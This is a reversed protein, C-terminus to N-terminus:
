HLLNLDMYSREYAIWAIGLGAYPTSGTVHPRLSWSHLSLWLWFRLRRYPWLWNIALRAWFKALTMESKVLCPLFLEWLYWGKQQSYYLLYEFFHMWTTWCFRSRDVMNTSRTGFTSKTQQIFKTVRALSLVPENWKSTVLCSAFLRAKWKSKQHKSM